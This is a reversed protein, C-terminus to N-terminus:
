NKVAVVTLRKYDAYISGEHLLKPLLRETITAYLVAKEEDSFRNMFDGGFNALWGSLGQKNDSLKTPRDYHRAYEVKFGHQELLSAYEGISPFYWPNMPSADLGYDEEMVEYIAQVISEVNGKGGFEAVFRGGPKLVQYISRVVGQADKMWHLAANSFVADYREEATFSEGNSIRFDLEPYKKQAAEIMSASYDIGTVKAGSKAIQFSLDGTGCGLDLIRENQEPKLLDILNKGYESVFALKNDYSEPNWINTSSM